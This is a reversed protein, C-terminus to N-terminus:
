KKTIAWTILSITVPLIILQSIIFGGLLKNKWEELKTVRGNTRVTQEEIRSLKTELAGHQEANIDTFNELKLTFVEKLSALENIIIQDNQRCEEPM